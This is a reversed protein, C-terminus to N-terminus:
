TNLLYDELIVVAAQADIDGKKYDKGQLRDEAVRSSLTEDQFVIPLKFLTLKEQSFAKVYQTQATEQGELNRPLGVVLIDPQYEDILAQLARTFNDDNILAGLAQPIRAILQVRAVGIRKEGIDLGLVSNIVM